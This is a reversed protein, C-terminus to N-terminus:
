DLYKREPFKIDFNIGAIARMTALVKDSHALQSIHVTEFPETTIIVIAKVIEHDFYITAKNYGRGMERRVKDVIFAKGQRFTGGNSQAPDLLLASYTFSPKICNNPAIYSYNFGSGSDNNVIINTNNDGKNVILNTDGGHAGSSYNYRRHRERCKRYTTRYNEFFFNQYQDFRSTSWNANFYQNIGNFFGTLGDSGLLIFDRNAPIDLDYRLQFETGEPMEIVSDSFSVALAGTAPWFLLLLIFLGRKFIKKKM